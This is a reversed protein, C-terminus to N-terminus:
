AKLTPDGTKCDQYPNNARITPEPAAHHLPVHLVSKDSESNRKKM